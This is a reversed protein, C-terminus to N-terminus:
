LQNELWSERPLAKFTENHLQIIEAAFSIAVEQPAKGGIPLGIPCHVKSLSETPFGKETLRKQFRQWKTNSGILGLYRTEKSLLKEILDQDLDHDYTMVVVYTKESNWHEYQDIFEPGTNKYKTVSPAAKELWEERNDVMHLQFATAELTKAISQAVHGAGFIILQPGTNLTEIFVEVFGGCCQNAKLCLPFPVREPAQPTKLLKRAKEIILEELTGGGITGFFEKDTVLLKTGIDRPTSGTAKIITVLAVPQAKHKLSYLESIWDWSM